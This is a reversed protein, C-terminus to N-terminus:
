VGLYRSIRLDRSTEVEDNVPEDTFFLAEEAAISYNDKIYRLAVYGRAQGAAIVALTYGLISAFILFLMFAMFYSIASDSPYGAMLRLDVGFPIGPFINFTERALDSRVPLHALGSQALRGLREGGGLSSSWILFQVARYAFYAYIFGCVKAAFFSYATYGFWRFPQLIITSFTELIATFTEGRREAAAVAPLLLVTLLLVFIIFIALIAIIFNPLAFLLVYLWEGVVPIRSVLGLVTFILIILGVFLAISLESLFIQPLRKFAFMIAQRPSLFRNGRIAEINIASVAFFGLMFTLVALGVGLWYAIQGGISTIILGDFPFLGYIGFARSLDDGSIALGVYTFADYVVLAGVVTMTMVLIQKASLAAAPARLVDKFNFQPVTEM